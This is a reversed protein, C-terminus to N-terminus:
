PSIGLASVAVCSFQGGERPLGWLAEAMLKGGIRVELGSRGGLRLDVM